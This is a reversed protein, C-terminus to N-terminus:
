RAPKSGLPAGRGRQPAAAPGGFRPPALSRAFAVVFGVADHVPLGTAARIAAAHPPLNTCECLIAGIGGRRQLRLAAAVAERELAAPDSAGGRDGYVARFLGDEAFGEVPADPPMGAAARHRATLAAASFTLVGVRRGPPMTAQLAPWLLLASTAVPVPLAAALERQLAVLFGCSTAIGDVGEAALARGAAVFADLLGAAGGEVVRAPDAGRVIRRTVRFPFTDPHGIDGPLRTFGADLMLLGLHPAPKM